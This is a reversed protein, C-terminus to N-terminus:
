GRGSGPLWKIRADTVTWATRASGATWRARAAGTSFLVIVQGGISGVATFGPTVALAAARRGGRGRLATFSVSLSLSASPQHGHLPLAAFSPTVTLAASRSRGHRETASYSPTISLSAARYRVHLRTATFSPALALAARRGHVQQSAASFSPTLPLAATRARGRVRTASYSPTVPLSATATHPTGAVTIEVDLWYNAANFSNAPYSLSSGGDFSDQGVDSGASDPATLPGNTIGGSGAGTDWYHSTASYWNVSSPQQVAGRYNVSATLGPPSSFAARVWGSGAAGSWTAMESHALSQGSVTFLAIEAPLVTAGSASYFWIATLAAAASVSFEIGMTYPSPDSVLSSGTAAQSFLTSSSM